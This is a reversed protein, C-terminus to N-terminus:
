MTCRIRAEKALEDHVGAGIGEQRCLGGAHANM